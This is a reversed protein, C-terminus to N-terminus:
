RDGCGCPCCNPDMGHICCGMESLETQSQDLEEHSSYDGTSKAIAVAQDRDPSGPPYALDVMGSFRQVFIEYSQGCGQIAHDAIANIKGYIKQESTESINLHM